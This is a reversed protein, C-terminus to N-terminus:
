LILDILVNPMMQGNENNENIHKQSQSDRPTSLLPLTNGHGMDDLSSDNETQISRETALAYLLVSLIRKYHELQVLRTTM